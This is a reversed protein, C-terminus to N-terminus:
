GAPFEPQNELDALRGYWGAAADAGLGQARLMFRRRLDDETMPLSPLGLFGDAMAELRRGDRLGLTLRASWASPLDAQTVLVIRDCARRIAPDHLADATYAGPDEPDRFQALALCFPVSYQAAMIDAPARIDHHSVVKESCGLAMSVIDAGSLGHRAMLGRLAQIPAQATVHCPYRKFCIKLTEWSDGLGRTLLAPEADRCYADLFGYRGELITDPGEYGEQALAAAMVGAEAARGLHLRKVMAGNGAKTFALLGASLSGAIGLARALGDADLGHVLGAAIAAGYPGTLGPAHFGLKECGHHTAAGIRFLVECAAVFATLAQRGHAGTEQCAAALAPVLTAGPHVGAGPFRLSDQEFAHAAAGNALAAAPATLGPSSAGFLTCPGGSGYRRAYAATAASWPLSAGHVCCALTDIICARARERVDAPIADYRLGAAFEALQRSASPQRGTAM